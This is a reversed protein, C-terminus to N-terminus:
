WKTKRKLRFIKRLVNKDSMGEHVDEHMYAHMHLDM